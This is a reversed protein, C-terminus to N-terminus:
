QSNITNILNNIGQLLVYPTPLNKTMSLISNLSNLATCMLKFDGIKISENLLVFNKMISAYFKNEVSVTAIIEELLDRFLLCEDPITNSKVGIDHTLYNDIKLQIEKISSSFNTYQNNIINTSISDNIQWLMPLPLIKTNDYLTDIKILTVVGINGGKNELYEIVAPQQCAKAFQTMTIGLGDICKNLFEGNLVINTKHIYYKLPLLDGIVCTLILLSELTFNDVASVIGAEMLKYYQYAMRLNNKSYVSNATNMLRVLRTNIMSSVSGTDVWWYANGMDTANFPISGGCRGDLERIDYGNACFLVGMQFKGLNMAHLVPHGGCGWTDGQNYRTGGGMEIALTPHVKFLLHVNLINKNNKTIYHLARGWSDYTNPNTGLKLATKLKTTDYIGHISVEIYNKAPSYLIENKSEMNPININILENLKILCLRRIEMEDLMELLAMKPQGEKIVNGLPTEINAWNVDHAKCIMQGTWFRYNDYQRTLIDVLSEDCLSFNKLIMIINDLNTFVDKARKITEINCEYGPRKSAIMYVDCAISLIDLNPMTNIDTLSLDPVLIMLENLFLPLSEILTTDYLVEVVKSVGGGQRLSQTQLSSKSHNDIWCSLQRMYLRKESTTLVHEGVIEKKLADCIDILNKTHLEKFSQTTIRELRSLNQNIQNLRGIVSVILIEEVRQFCELMANHMAIISQQIQQLAEALGNDEDDDGGFLGGIVGIAGIVFGIGGTIAGLSMMTKAGAMLSLSSAMSIAGQSVKAVGNWTRKHGGVTLALQAMNMGLTGFDNLPQAIKLLQERINIEPTELTFQQSTFVLDYYAQAANDAAGALREYEENKADIDNKADINYEENKDNNINANDYEKNKADIYENLHDPYISNTDNPQDTTNAFGGVLSGAKGPIPKKVAITKAGYEFFESYISADVEAYGAKKFANQVTTSLHSGSPQYHGSFNTLEIIKGDNVIVEGAAYVPRLKALEPHLVQMIFEGHKNAMMPDFLSKDITKQFTKSILLENDITYVYIMDNIGKLKRTDNLSLTNVKYNLNVDGLAHFEPPNGVGFKKVNQLYKVEKIISYPIIITTGLASLSEIQSELPAHIFDKVSSKIANIKSQMRQSSELYLQPNKQLMTKYLSPAHQNKQYQHNLTIITSDYILQSVPHIINDIPHAVLEGLEVVGRIVGKIIAKSQIYNQRADYESYNILEM